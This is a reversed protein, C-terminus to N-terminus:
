CSDKIQFHVVVLCLCCNCCWHCCIGHDIASFRGVCSIIMRVRCGFIHCRCGFGGSTVVWRSSSLTDNCNQFFVPTLNTFLSIFLLMSCVISMHTTKLNWKLPENSECQWLQFISTFYNSIFVFQFISTLIM